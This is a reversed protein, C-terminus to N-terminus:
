RKIAKGPAKHQRLRKALLADYLKLMVWAPRATPVGHQRWLDKATDFQSMARELVTTCAKALQPHNMVAVANRTEIGANQLVENPLYLRGASADENLDRLINTLQLAEGTVDAFEIADSSRWGWVALCLQGVSGAVCNCYQQLSSWTPAVVPGNVDMEMGDILADFPARPLEFKSVIQALAIVLSDEEEHSTADKEFLDDIHSRWQSLKTTKEEFSDQSDAIDDLARCYAYITFLAERHRQNQLRMPWYFSTGRARIQAAIENHM